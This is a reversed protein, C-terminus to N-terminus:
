RSPRPVRAVEGWTSGNWTREELYPIIDEPEKSGVQKMADVWVNVADYATFTFYTNTRYGFEKEFRDMMPLTRLTQQSDAAATTLRRLGPFSRGVSECFGDAMALLHIGGFDFSREQTGWQRAAPM